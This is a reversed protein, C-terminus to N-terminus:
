CKFRVQFYAFEVGLLFRKMKWGDLWRNESALVNTESLNKEFFDLMASAACKEGIFIARQFFNDRQVKVAEHSWPGLPRLSGLLLLAVQAKKKPPIPVVRQYVLM